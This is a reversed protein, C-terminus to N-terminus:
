INPHSDSFKGLVDNLANCAENMTRRRQKQKDLAQLKKGIKSIFRDADM